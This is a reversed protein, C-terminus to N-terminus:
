SSRSSLAASTEKKELQLFSDAGTHASLDIGERLHLIGEIEAPTTLHRLVVAEIADPYRAQVLRGSSSNVSAHTSQLNM